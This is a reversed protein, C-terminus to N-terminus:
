EGISPHKEEWRKVEQDICRKHEAIARQGANQRELEAGVVKTGANLDVIGNSHIEL